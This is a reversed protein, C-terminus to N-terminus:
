HQEPWIGLIVIHSKFQIGDQKWRLFAQDTGGGPLGLNLFEVDDRMQELYDQWTEGNNVQM